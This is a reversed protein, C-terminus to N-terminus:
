RFSQKVGGKDVNDGLVSLFKENAVAAELASSIFDRQSKGSIAAAVRIKQALDTTILTQVRKLGMKKLDAVSAKSLDTM